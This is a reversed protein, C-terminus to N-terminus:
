EIVGLIESERILLWEQDDIRLDDGGFKSFLVKDGPDVQPASRTGDDNLKGEGIAVVTGRTVKERANDPLFIGGDTRDQEEDRRIVIRDALPRLSMSTEIEVETKM